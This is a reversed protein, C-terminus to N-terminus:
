WILVVEVAAGALVLVGLALPHSFRTRRGVKVVETTQGTGVHDRRGICHCVVPQAVLQKLLASGMM